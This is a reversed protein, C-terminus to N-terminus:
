DHTVHRRPRLFGGVAEGARRFASAYPGTMRAAQELLPKETWLFSRALKRRRGAPAGLVALLNAAIAREAAIPSFEWLYAVRALADRDKENM